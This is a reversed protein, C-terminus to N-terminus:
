LVTAFAPVAPSSEKTQAEGHVRQFEEIARIASVNGAKSQEILWRLAEADGVRAKALARTVAMGNVATTITSREMQTNMEKENGKGKKEQDNGEPRLGQRRIFRLL